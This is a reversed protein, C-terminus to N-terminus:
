KQLKRYGKITQINAVIDPIQQLSKIFKKNQQFCSQQKQIVGVQM